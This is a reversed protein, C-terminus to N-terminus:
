MGYIPGGSIQGELIAGRLPLNCHYLNPRGKVKFFSAISFAESTPGFRKRLSAEVKRRTWPDPIERRYFSLYNKLAAPFEAQRPPLQGTAVVDGLLKIQETLKTQNISLKLGETPVTYFLTKHSLNSIAAQRPDKILQAKDDYYTPYFQYGRVHSWLNVEQSYAMFHVDPKGNSRTGMMFAIIRQGDPVQPWPQNDKIPLHRARAIKLFRHMMKMNLIEETCWVSQIGAADSPLM